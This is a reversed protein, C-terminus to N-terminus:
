GVQKSMNGIATYQQLSRLSACDRSCRACSDSVSPRLIAQSCQFAPSTVERGLAKATELNINLEVKTAQQVPMEAAKLIGVYRRRLEDLWGAVAFERYQCTVVMFLVGMVMRTAAM